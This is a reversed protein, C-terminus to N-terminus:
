TTSSLLLRAVDAPADWMPVHGCEHLVVERAQVPLVRPRSILRDQDCWAITVPVHIREGSTFRGARMADSVAVFGPAAAYAVAMRIADARPVREPHAVSGSLAVRRVRQSRLLAPLAFRVSRAIRRMVYPKPALPRRWLGAPAICCVSTARELAALELAVWAGLSNGGIGARDLGLEDLMGAIARALAPPSPVTGNALPASAGFGPLDVTIVDRRQALADVVPAWVARDGGLGHILLLPSGSGTRYFAVGAAEAALERQSPM